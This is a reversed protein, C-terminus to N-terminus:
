GPSSCGSLKLTDGQQWDGDKADNNKRGHSGSKQNWVIVEGNWKPQGHKTEQIVNFVIGDWSETGGVMKALCDENFFFYKGTDGDREHKTHAM